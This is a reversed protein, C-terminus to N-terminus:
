LFARVKKNVQFPYKLSSHTVPEVATDAIKQMIDMDTPDINPIESKPNNKGTVIDFVKM